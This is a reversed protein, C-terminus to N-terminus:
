LGLGAISKRVAEASRKVAAQEEERLEVELIAEVGGGGLKVPVGFCIDRLGYEGELYASCALIRKKDKLIAEVMEVVSAGPSYFASGTKLLAVIEGGAKRTREAIRDIQEKRLLQTIPIGSVTCYHPLPVM